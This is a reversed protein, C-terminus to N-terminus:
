IGHCQRANKNRYIIMYKTNHANVDLGTKKNVIAADEANEKITNVSGGYINVDDVYVLLQRSVNVSLCHYTALGKTHFPM